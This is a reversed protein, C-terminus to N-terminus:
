SQRRRPNRRQNNRRKTTIMAQTWPGNALLCQSRSPSMDPHTPMEQRRLQRRNAFLCSLSHSLLKSLKSPTRSTKMSTAWPSAASSSLDEVRRSSLSPQKLGSFRCKSMTVQKKAERGPTSRSYLDEEQETLKSARREALISKMRELPNAGTSREEPAGTM